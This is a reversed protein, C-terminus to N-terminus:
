AIIKKIVTNNFTVIYTGGAPVAVSTLWEGKTNTVTTGIFQSTDGIDYALIPYVNIVINKQAKGDRNVVRLTGESPYNHSLLIM